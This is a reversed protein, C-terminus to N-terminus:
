KTKSEMDKLLTNMKEEAAEKTMGYKKQVTGVAKDYDGEMKMVEDDTLDGWMKKMNGKLTNWNSKFTEKNM